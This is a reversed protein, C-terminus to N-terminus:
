DKRAIIVNAKMDKKLPQQVSEETDFGATALWNELESKEFGLWRDGYKTRLEENSHKDLDSLVLKGGKSLVRATEALVAYPSQIHHLAMNLVALNAEGDRLPQHELEGIRLSLKENSVFRKRAEELMKPSNDVGIVTDAKGALAPLLDGTGCGLDVAVRCPKVRDTIISGLSFDGIIERKMSDWDEAMKDFFLSTKKKREQKLQEAKARDKRFRNENETLDKLKELVLRGEESVTYFVWLGDRRSSVMGSESLIKLHRSIRSQIMGFLKMIENVNFENDVLISVIRLRTEDALSKLVKIPNM